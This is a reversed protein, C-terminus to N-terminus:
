LNAEKGRAYVALPAIHRVFHRELTAAYLGAHTRLAGNIQTNFEALTSGFTVHLIQRADHDELLAPLDADTLSAPAPLRAVDASVHYTARDTPYRGAAFALIARFLAPEAEALVRLAELYSTGATKLHVRGRTLEAIIPYVSFKDSGSHLSLKYDGHARAIEAHGALDAALAALDGRYEVGKEFDGVYRPALSVWSVGLRLLERAIYLHEAHSTPSDTEDVSIELEFPASQAALHRYLAAVHAVAAGYKVAARTLAEPTITIRQTELEVTQGAYRRMLDDASSALDAWPLAALKRALAGEDTDAAPDVHASPDITFFTFGAALCSDIDATTKLHDADAGYGGQWNHAFIAWMADDLVQQPTRNTRQMERISQQAFIPMVGAGAARIAAIHGPTALGLRDGLGASTAVGLLQPRLWLVHARLAAANQPSLPGRLTVRGEALTREGECAAVLPAAAPAEVILQSAGNSETVGITTDHFTAIVRQDLTTHMPYWGIEVGALRTLTDFVITVDIVGTNSAAGTYDKAGNL